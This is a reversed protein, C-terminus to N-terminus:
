SELLVEVEDGPEPPEKFEDLPVSGESKFGFELIVANDTVRLVKAQVIEGERIDQLDSAYDGLLKAFEDRSMDLPEEGYPDMLLEPSIRRGNSGAEDDDMVGTYVKGTLADVVVGAEDDDSDDHQSSSTPDLQTM